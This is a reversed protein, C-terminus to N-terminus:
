AVAPILESASAPSRQVMAQAYLRVWCPVAGEDVYATFYQGVLEDNPTDQFWATYAQRFLDFQCIGLLESVTLLDIEPTYGNSARVLDSSNWIKNAM